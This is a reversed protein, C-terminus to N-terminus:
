KPGWREAVVRGSPGRRCNAAPKGGFTETLQVEKKATFARRYITCRNTLPGDERAWAAFERAKQYGYRLDASSTGTAQTRLWVANEAFPLAQVAQRFAAPYPRWYDEANSLYVARVQLGAKALRAAVQHVLGSRMWDGRLALVKGAAMASRVFQYTPEDSLFTPINRQAYLVRVKRLRSYVLSATRRFVARCQGNCGERTLLALAAARQKPGWLDLFARSDPAHLFLARYARHLEVVWPDYDTLLALDPRFWGMMLYNQDTGVGIYVGGQGPVVSRYLDLNNENSILYHTNFAGSSCNLLMAPTPDPPLNALEATLSADLGPTAPLPSADLTLSTLHLALAVCLSSFEVVM